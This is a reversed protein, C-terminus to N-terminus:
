GANKGNKLKIGIAGGLIMSIIGAAYPDFTCFKFSSGLSLIILLGLATYIVIDERTM